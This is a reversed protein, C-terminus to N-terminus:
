TIRTTDGTITGGQRVYLRLSSRQDNLQNNSPRKHSPNGARFVHTDRVHQQAHQIESKCTRCLALSSPSPDCPSIVGATSHSSILLTVARLARWRVHSHVAIFGCLLRVPIVNTSSSPPPYITASVFTCCGPAHFWPPLDVLALGILGAISM